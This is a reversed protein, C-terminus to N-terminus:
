RFSDRKFYFAIVAISIGVAVGVIFWAANVLM